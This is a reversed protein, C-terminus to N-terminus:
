EAAFLLAALFGLGQHMVAHEVDGGRIGAQERDIGAGAPLQPAVLVAQGVVDAGAAVDDVPACDDEAVLDEEAGEIRRDDREVLLGALDGPALLEAVM